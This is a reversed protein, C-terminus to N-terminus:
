YIQCQSRGGGVGSGGWTDAFTLVYLITHHAVQDCPSLLVMKLEVHCLCFTSTTFRFLALVSTVGTEM